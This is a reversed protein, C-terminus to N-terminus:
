SEGGRPDYRPTGPAYCHPVSDENPSINLIVQTRQHSDVYIIIRLYYIHHLEYYKGPREM